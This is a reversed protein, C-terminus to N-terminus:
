KGYWWGNWLNQLRVKLILLRVALRSKKRPIDHWEDEYPTKFGTVILFDSCMDEAMRSRGKYYYAGRPIECRLIVTAPFGGDRCEDEAEAIDAHSHFGEYIVRYEVKKQFCPEYYLKGGEYMFNRFASFFTIKGLRDNYESETVSKYTVIRKKARKATYDYPYLCM